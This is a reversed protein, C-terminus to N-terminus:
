LFPISFLHYQLLGTYQSLYTYTQAFLVSVSWVSWCRCQKGNWRCMQAAEHCFWCFSRQMWRRSLCAQANAWDPWLRRQGCISVNPGWSGMSRVAFVLDSLASAWASRLRGQACTDNQQNQWSTAWNKRCMGPSQHSPLVSVHCFWCFSQADLSSESWGPCRGLRILTKATRM